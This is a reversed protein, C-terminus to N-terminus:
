EDIIGTMIGQIRKSTKLKVETQERVVKALRKCFEVDHMRPNWIPGGIVLNGDCVKCRFPVTIRAAAVKVQGKEEM